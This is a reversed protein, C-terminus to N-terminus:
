PAAPGGGGGATLAEFQQRQEPTMTTILFGLVADMKRNMARIQEDRPDPARKVLAKVPEGRIEPIKGAVLRVYGDEIARRLWFACSPLHAAAAAVEERAAAVGWGRKRIKELLGANERDYLSEIITVEGSDFDVRLRQGPIGAMGWEPILQSLFQDRHLARMLDFRGRLTRGIPQFYFNGDTPTDVEIEVV